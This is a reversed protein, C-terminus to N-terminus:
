LSEKILFVNFNKNQVITVNSERKDKNQMSIGTSM